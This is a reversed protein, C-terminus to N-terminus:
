EIEEISYQVENNIHEWRHWPCKTCDRSHCIEAATSRCSRTLLGYLTPDISFFFDYFEGTPIHIIRYKKM